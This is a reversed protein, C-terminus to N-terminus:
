SFLVTFKNKEKGSLDAATMVLYLKATTTRTREMVTNAMNHAGFIKIVWHVFTAM